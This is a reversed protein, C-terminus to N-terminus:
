AGWGAGSSYGGAQQSGTWQNSFPNNQTGMFPQQASNFDPTQYFQNAQQQQFPQFPQGTYM